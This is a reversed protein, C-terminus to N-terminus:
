SSPAGGRSRGAASVPSMPMPRSMVSLFRASASRLWRSDRSWIWISRMGSAYRVVSALKRNVRQFGAASRNNPNLSASTSPRCGNSMMTVSCDRASMVRIKASTTAPLMSACPSASFRVLSPRVMMQSHCLVGSMAGVAREDAQERQREIDGLPVLEPRLQPLRLLHLRDPLEGAAHRVVEVVQQRQDVPVAFQQDGVVLQTGYRQSRCPRNTLCALTGRRERPLQETEAALRQQLGATSSRFVTTSSVLAISRRRIPSFM